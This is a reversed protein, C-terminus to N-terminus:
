MRICVNTVLSRTSEVVVETVYLHVRNKYDYPNLMCAQQHMNICAVLERRDM